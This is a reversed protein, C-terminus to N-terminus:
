CSSAGAAFALVNDAPEGSVMREVHDAWNQSAAAREKAYTAKNYIGAVGAKHGSIHNVIAEVIHPATGIECMGTVATRRLDHLWWEAFSDGLAKDLREKCKSWGSFGTDDRGFVHVAGEIRRRRELIEVAQTPLYVVHAKGNKTREGPLTWTRRALDIENWRMGGVEERRQATLVLLRVIAGYDTSPASLSWISTLEAPTLVRERPKEKKLAKIDSMVNRTIIQEKIGFNLCASLYARARNSSIVGRAAAIKRLEAAVAGRDIKDADLDHISTWVKRLYREVEVLTRPALDLEPSALYAEIVMGIRRHRQGREDLEARRRAAAAARGEAVRDKGEVAASRIATAQKRADAEKLTGPLTKQRQAGAVRYRVVWSIKGAQVRRGLGRVEEDWTVGDPLGAGQSTM